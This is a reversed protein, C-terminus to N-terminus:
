NKASKIDNVFELYEGAFAIIHYLSLKYKDRLEEGTISLNELNCSIIKAFLAYVKEIAEIDGGKTIDGIIKSNVLLEQLIGETPTTVRIKTKEKDCMTLEIVPVDLANFDLTRKM